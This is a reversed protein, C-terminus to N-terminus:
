SRARDAGAGFPALCTNEKPSSPSHSSGSGAPADWRPRTLAGASTASRLSHRSDAWRPPPDLPRPHCLAAFTTRSARLYTVTALLLALLIPLVVMCAPCGGAHGPVAAPALVPLGMLVLLLIVLIVFRRQM